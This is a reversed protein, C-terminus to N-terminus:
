RRQDFMMEYHKAGRVADKLKPQQKHGGAERRDEQTATKHGKQWLSFQKSTSQSFDVHIRRDDILVNDMKLYAKQAIEKTAFEIFAYQLSDGTLVSDTSSGCLM